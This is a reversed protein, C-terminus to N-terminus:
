VVRRAITLFYNIHAVACSRLKKIHNPIALPIYSIGPYSSVTYSRVLHRVHVRTGWLNPAPAATSFKTGFKTRRGHGHIGKRTRSDMYNPHETPSCLLEYFKCTGRNFKYYFSWYDCKIAIKKTTPMSVSQVWMNTGAQSGIEIKEHLRSCGVYMGSWHEMVFTSTIFIYIAYYSKTGRSM